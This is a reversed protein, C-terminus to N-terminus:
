QTVVGLVRYAIMALGDMPSTRCESVTQINMSALEVVSCPESYPQMARDQCM